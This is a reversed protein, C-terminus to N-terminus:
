KSYYKELNDLLGRAISVIRPMRKYFDSKYESILQTALETDKIPSSQIFPVFDAMFITIKYIDGSITNEEVIIEIEGLKQIHYQIKQKHYM